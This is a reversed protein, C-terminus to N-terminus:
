RNANDEPREDITALSAVDPGRGSVVPVDKHGRIDPTVEELVAPSKLSQVIEHTPLNMFSDRSLPPPSCTPWRRQSMGSPILRPPSAKMLCERLMEQLPQRRNTLDMPVVDNERPVGLSTTPIELTTPSVLTKKTPTSSIKELTSSFLQIREGAQTAVWSREELPPSGALIPRTPHSVAPVPREVAGQWIVRVEPCKDGRRDRVREWGLCTGRCNKREAPDKTEEGGWVHAGAARREALDNAKEGGRGRTVQGLTPM